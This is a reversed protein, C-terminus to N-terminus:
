DRKYGIQLGDEEADRAADGGDDDEEDDADHSALDLVQAEVNHAGSGDRREDPEEPHRKDRSPLARLNTHEEAEKRM